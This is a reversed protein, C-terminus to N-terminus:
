AYMSGDLVRNKAEPINSCNERTFVSGFFDNILRGVGICDEDLRGQADHLPGVESTGRSKSKVYAYFSKPDNKIKDALKIEYERKASRIDKNNM